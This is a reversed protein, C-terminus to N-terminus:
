RGPARRPALLRQGAPHRRPGARRAGPRAVATRRSRRPRRLRSPRRRRAAGSRGALVHGPRACGARRPRSARRRPRPAGARARARGRDGRPPLRHRAHRLAPHAAHPRARRGRREGHPEQAVPRRDVRRHRARRRPERAGAAAGRADYRGAADTSLVDAPDVGAGGRDDRDLVRLRRSGDRAVLATDIAIVATTGTHIRGINMATMAISFAFAVAAMALWWLPTARLLAYIVEVGALGIVAGLAAAKARDTLWGALPQHLLGYRRPLVWSSVWALPLGLLAHGAGLAAAVIAVQGPASATLRAAFAALAAGGGAFVLAALYVAGLALRALRLRLQLRHYRTSDPATM